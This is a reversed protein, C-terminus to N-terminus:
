TSLKRIIIKKGNKLIVEAKEEKNDMLKHIAEGVEPNDRLLERTEKSLCDM